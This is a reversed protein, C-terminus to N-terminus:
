AVYEATWSDGHPTMKYIKNNNANADVKILLKPKIDTLM